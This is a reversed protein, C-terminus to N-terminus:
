QDKYQYKQSSQVQLTESVHTNAKQCEPCMGYYMIRSGILKFGTDKELHSKMCLAPSEDYDTINHCQICALNIHPTQRTEFHVADDGTSGLENIVGQNVLVRLTNYVTALSLSPYQGKLQQYIDAATPHRDSEMLAKCIATRTATLRLGSDIFVKESQTM